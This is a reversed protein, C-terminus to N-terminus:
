EAEAQAMRLVLAEIRTMAARLQEETRGALAELETLIDPRGVDGAHLILDVESFVDLVEKRLQGHTDSIIGLRM